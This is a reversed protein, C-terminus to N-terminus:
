QNLTLQEALQAVRGSRTCRHSCVTIIGNTYRRNKPARSALRSKGAIYLPANVKWFEILRLAFKLGVRNRGEPFHLAAFYSASFYTAAFVSCLFHGSCGGNGM